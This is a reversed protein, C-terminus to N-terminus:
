TTNSFALLIPARQFKCTSKQCEPAGCNPVIQRSLVHRSVMDSCRERKLKISRATAGSGLADTGTVILHGADQGDAADTPRDNQVRAVKHLHLVGYQVAAPSAPGTDSARGLPGFITICTKKHVFGTEICPPTLARAHMVFDLGVESAV